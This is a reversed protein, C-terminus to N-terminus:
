EKRYAFAWTLGLRLEHVPESGAQAYRVAADFSLGERLRWVAGVLGSDIRPSGRARETFLEAVPRLRWAFPGELIAGLFLDPEGDRNRAVEANFHATAERWRESVIGALFFGFDNEHPISPLLVGYEAAVSPGSEDQLVGRRLVHKVSVGNDVLVVRPEGPQPDLAVERRGEIVLERDHALGFNAVVDPAVRLRTEGERLRQVPGLELEFEGNPSVAADTGDFPRYAHAPTAVLLAVVAPLLNKWM